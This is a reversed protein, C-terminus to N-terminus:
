VSCVETGDLRKEAVGVYAGGLNVGMDGVAVQAFDVFIKVVFVFLRTWSNTLNYKNKAIIFHSNGRGKILFLSPDAPM